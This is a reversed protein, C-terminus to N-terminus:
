GQVPRTARLVQVEKVTLKHNGAYTMFNLKMNTRFPGPQVTGTTIAVGGLTHTYAGGGITDATTYSYGGLFSSSQSVSVYLISGQMIILQVSYWTNAAFTTMASAGQTLTSATYKRTIINGVNTGTGDFQMGLQNNANINTTSAVMLIVGSVSTCGDLKLIAEVIFTETNKFNDKNLPVSLVFSDGSTSATTTMNLGDADFSYTCTGPTGNPTVTYARGEVTQNSTYSAVPYEYYRLTEVVDWQAFTFSPDIAVGYAKTSTATRGNADTVTCTVVAM